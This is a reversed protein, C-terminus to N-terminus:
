ANDKNFAATFEPNLHTYRALMRFDKHKSIAAVHAVGLGQGFFRSIAEHRLDHFHLDETNARAKVHECILRLANATMPFLRDEKDPM